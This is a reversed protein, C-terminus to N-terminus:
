STGNGSPLLGSDVAADILCAMGWRNGAGPDRAFIGMTAAGPMVLHSGTAHDVLYDQPDVQDNLRYYSRWAGTMADIRALTGTPGIM